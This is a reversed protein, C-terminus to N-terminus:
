RFYSALRDRLGTLRDIEADLLTLRREAVGGPRECPTGPEGPLPLASGSLAALRDPFTGLDEVTLGLSLLERIVLVRDVDEQSYERQGSPTRRPPPLIGKEEYFRLARPTTGAAAAADSIRM